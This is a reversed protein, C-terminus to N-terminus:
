NPVGPHLHNRKTTLFRKKISPRSTAPIIGFETKIIGNGTKFIFNSSKSFCKSFFFFKIPPSSSPTFYNWKKNPHSWKRNQYFPSINQLHTKRDTTHLYCCFPSYSDPLGNTLWHTLWALPHYAQKAAVFSWATRCAVHHTLAGPM